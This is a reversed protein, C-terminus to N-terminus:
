KEYQKNGLLVVNMYTFILVFIIIVFFYLLRPYSYAPNIFNVPMISANEVIEGLSTMAISFLMPFIDVVYVRSAYIAACMAVVAMSGAYVMVMLISIILYLLPYKYFIYSMSSKPMMMNMGDDPFPKYTSMTMTCILFNVILPIGVAVAGSVFTALYKAKIYKKSSCKMRIFNAMGFNMDKFYSNGYPIAAFLPVLLFFAVAISRDSGGIWMEYSNLPLIEYSNKLNLLSKHNAILMPVVRIFYDAMSVLMAIMVAFKFGPTKFARKLEYKYIM